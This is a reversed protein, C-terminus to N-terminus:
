EARRMAAAIGCLMAGVAFLKAPDPIEPLSTVAATTAVIPAQASVADITDGPHVATRRADLSLAYGVPVVVAPVIVALVVARIRRRM